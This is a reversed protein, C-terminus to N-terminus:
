SEERLSAMVRYVEVHPTGVAGYAEAITARLESEAYAALDDPSRWLYLGGYEGTEAEQLYYKQQLGELRRFEPMRERMIREVDAPPLSSRLRVLLVVAPDSMRIEEPHNATVRRFRISRGRWCRWESPSGGDGLRRAMSRWLAVGASLGGALGALGGVGIGLAVMPSVEGALGSVVLAGLQGGLFGGALTGGLVLVMKTLPREASVTIETQSRDAAVQILTWRSSSRWVSDGVAVIEGRFRPMAAQGIAIAKRADEQSHSV